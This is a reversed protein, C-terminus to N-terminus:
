LLMAQMAVAMWRGAALSAAAAALCDGTGCATQRALSPRARALVLLLSEGAVMRPTVFCVGACFVERAMLEITDM